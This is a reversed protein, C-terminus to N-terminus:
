VGDWQRYVKGCNKCICHEIWSKGQLDTANVVVEDTEGCNPCKYDDRCKDEAIFDKKYRTPVSGYNRNIFSGLKDLYERREKNSMQMIEKETKLEM